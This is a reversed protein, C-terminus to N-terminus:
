LSCVNHVLGLDSVLTSKMEHCNNLSVFYHDIFLILFFLFLCLVTKWFRISWYETCLICRWGFRCLFALSFVIFCLGFLRFIGCIKLNFKLVDIIFFLFCGWNCFINRKWKSISFFFFFIEWDLVHVFVCSGSVGLHEFDWDVLSFCDFWIVWNVLCILIFFRCYILLPKWLPLRTSGLKMAGWLSSRRILCGMRRWAGWGWGTRWRGLRRKWGARWRATGTRCSRWWLFHGSAPHGSGPSVVGGGALAWAPPAPPFGANPSPTFGTWVM